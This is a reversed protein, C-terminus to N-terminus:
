SSFGDYRQQILNWIETEITEVDREAAIVIMRDPELRALELYGQRVREYFPMEEEEMRDAGEAAHARTERVAREWAIRADMDLVITLDPKLGGTAFANIQAIANMDLGRGLGQYVLTSDQFRDALVHVGDELWPILQERVLQARSAAFLLLESEACMGRGEPAFKLLHRVAEGLNTGGPERTKVCREGRAELRALLRAIQTSKGCGESGEFSVFIGRRRAM